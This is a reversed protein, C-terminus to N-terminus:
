WAKKSRYSWLYHDRQAQPLALVGAFVRSSWAWPCYYGQPSQCRIQRPQQGGGTGLNTDRVLPTRIQKYIHRGCIASELTSAKVSQWTSCIQKYIHRGRIVSQWTSHATKCFCRFCRGSNEWGNILRSNRTLGMNKQQWSNYTCASLLCRRRYNYVRNWPVALYNNQMLNRRKRYGCTVWLLHTDVKQETKSLNETKVAKVAIMWERKCTLLQWCSCPLVSLPTSFRSQFCGFFKGAYDPLISIVDCQIRM